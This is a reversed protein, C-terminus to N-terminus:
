AEGASIAGRCAGVRGIDANQDFIEPAGPAGTVDDSVDDM